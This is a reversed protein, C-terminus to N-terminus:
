VGKVKVKNVNSLSQNKGCNCSPHFKNVTPFYGNEIANIVYNSHRRVSSTTQRERATTSLVNLNPRCNGVVTAVFQSKKIYPPLSDLLDM